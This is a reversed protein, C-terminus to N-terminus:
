HLTHEEDTTLKELECNSIGESPLKPFGKRTCAEECSRTCATERCKGPCQREMAPIRTRMCMKVCECICNQGAEAREVAALMAVAVVVAVAMMTATPRAM